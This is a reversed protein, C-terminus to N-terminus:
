PAVARQRSCPTTTSGGARPVPPYPPMGGSPTTRSSSIDPTRWFWRAPRTASESGYLTVGDNIKNGVLSVRPSTEAMIAGPNNDWFRSNAVTLSDTGPFAYIATGLDNLGVNEFRPSAAGYLAVGIGVNNGMGGDLWVRAIQLNRFTVNAAGLVAIGTERAYNGDIITSASDKGVLTIGNTEIFLTSAPYYIGSDILISDGATAAQLAMAITAFPATDTGANSDSGIAFTFADGVVSTDNVYWTIGAADASPAAALLFV